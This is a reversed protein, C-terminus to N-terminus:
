EPRGKVQNYLMSDSYSMHAKLAPVEPSSQTCELGITKRFVKLQILVLSCRILNM